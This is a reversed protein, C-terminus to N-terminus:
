PTKSIFEKTISLRSGDLPIIKDDISLIELKRDCGICAIKKTKTDIVERKLLNRLNM